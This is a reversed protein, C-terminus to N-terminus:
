KFREIEGERNTYYVRRIGVFDILEQCSDCPKAIRLNCAKDIRVVLLDLGACNDLGHALICAAEAHLHPYKYIKRLAAHTKFSNRKAQYVYKRKFLIAGVRYDDHKPCDISSMAVCKCATILRDSVM